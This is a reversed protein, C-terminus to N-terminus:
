GLLPTGAPSMSSEILDQGTVQRPRLLAEREAQPPQLLHALLRKDGRQCCAQRLNEEPLSALLFRFPKHIPALLRCRSVIKGRLDRPAHDPRLHQGGGTAQLVCLCQRATGGGERGLGIPAVIACSGANGEAFDKALLSSGPPL